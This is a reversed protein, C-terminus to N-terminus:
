FPNFINIGDVINKFDSVNNTMLDLEHCKVTALIIADPLKIKRIKRISIATDAIHRTIFCMEFGNLLAQILKEEKNNKFNYGLVEMYTIVSIYIKKYKNLVIDESIKGKSLYIIINTDLLVNDGNM